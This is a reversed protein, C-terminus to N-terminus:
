VTIKIVITCSFFEFHKLVYIKYKSIILYMCNNNNIKKIFIFFESIFIFLNVFKQLQILNLISYLNYVHSTYVLM